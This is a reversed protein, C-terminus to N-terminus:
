QKIEQKRFFMIVMRPFTENTNTIKIQKTGPGTRMEEIQIDGLGDTNTQFWALYTNIDIDQYYHDKPAIRVAKTYALLKMTM